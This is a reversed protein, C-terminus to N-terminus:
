SGKYKRLYAVLNEASKINDDLFGVASNCQHCLIGRTCKGCNEYWGPCCSHDHDVSLRQKLEPKGCIACASDQEDLIRDYEARTIGYHKQLKWNFRREQIIPDRNREKAYCPACLGKTKYKARNGCPCTIWNEPHPLSRPRLKVGSRQLSNRVSTQSVNFRSAIESLSLNSRYLNAIETDQESSFKRKNPM